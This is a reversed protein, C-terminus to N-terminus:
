VPMTVLKAFSTGTQLARVVAEHAYKGRLPGLMYLLTHLNRWM